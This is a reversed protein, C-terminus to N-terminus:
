EILPLSLLSQGQCFMFVSDSFGCQHIMIGIVNEIGERTVPCNRSLSESRIMRDPLRRGLERYYEQLDTVVM